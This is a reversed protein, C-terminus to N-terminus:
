TRVSSGPVSLHDTGHRFLLGGGRGPIVADSHAVACLVERNDFRILCGAAGGCVTCLDNVQAQRWSGQGDDVNPQAAEVPDRTQADLWYAEPRTVLRANRYAWELPLVTYARYCAEEPDPHDTYRPDRDIVLALDVVAPDMLALPLLLQVRGPGGSKPWYFQPAALRWNTRAKAAVVKVAYELTAKRIHENARLAEPYRDVNDNVIHEINSVVTLRPDFVMDAPDQIFLAQEPVDSGFPRLRPSSPAAWEQHVWPQRDTNRNAEFVAYIPEHHRSLLGTDFASVTQGNPGETELWKGEELVRRTYYRLYNRLISQRGLGEDDWREPQATEALESPWSDTRPFWALAFLDPDVPHTIPRLPM